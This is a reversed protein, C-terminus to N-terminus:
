QGQKAQKKFYVRFPWMKQLAEMNQNLKTASQRAEWIGVRLDHVILTDNLVLSGPGSGSDLKNLILGLKESADLTQGSIERFNALALEVDRSLITDTMMKNWVGGEKNFEALGKELRKMVGPFQVSAQHIQAISHQIEAGMITDSLLVSALGQPNNLKLSFNALNSFIIAANQNIDELQRLIEQTDFPDISELEDGEEIKAATGSFRPKLELIKNGLLGDSAIFAVADKKIMGQVEERLKIMIRVSTDNQLIVDDVVGARVGAYRVLDGKRLGGADKFATYVTLTRTFMEQKTGIMFLSFIFLIVAGSTLIGLRLLKINERAM